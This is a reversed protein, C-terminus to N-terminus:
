HHPNGNAVKVKTRSEIKEDIRALFDYTKARLMQVMLFWWLMQTLILVELMLQFIGPVNNLQPKGRGMIAIM